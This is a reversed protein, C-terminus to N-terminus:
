NNPIGEAHPADLIQSLTLNEFMATLPQTATDPKMEAKYRNYDELLPADAKLPCGLEALKDVMKVFVAKSDNRITDNLGNEITHLLNPLAILLVGGLDQEQMREIAEEMEKVTQKWNEMM